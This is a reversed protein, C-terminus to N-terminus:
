SNPKILELLLEQYGDYFNEVWPSSEYAWIIPAYVITFIREVIPNSFLGTYDLLYATPIVGLVYSMLIAIVLVFWRIRFLRGRTVAFRWRKRGLRLQWSLFPREPEM